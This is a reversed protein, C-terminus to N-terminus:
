DAAALYTTFAATPGVAEDDRDVHLFSSEQVRLFVTAKIHNLYWPM